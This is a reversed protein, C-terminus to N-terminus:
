QKHQNCNMDGDSDDSELFKGDRLRREVFSDESPVQLLPILREVALAANTDFSGEQIRKRQAFQRQLTWLQRGRAAICLRRRSWRDDISFTETLL